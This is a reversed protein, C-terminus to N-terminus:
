LLIAWRWKPSARFDMVRQIDFSDETMQKRVVRELIFTEDREGQSSTDNKNEIVPLCCLARKIFDFSIGPTFPLCSSNLM